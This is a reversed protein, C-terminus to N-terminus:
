RGGSEIVAALALLTAESGPRGVLQVSTPLVRGLPTHTTGYPVSVAPWGLVNALPTFPSFRMSAWLSRGWSRRHWDTAEPPVDALSPTLWVDIGALDMAREVEARLTEVGRNWRTDGDGAGGRRFVTRGLLAHHRTRREMASLPLNEDEAARAVGTTWRALYLVPDTPSPLTTDVVVLDAGRLVEAAERAARTWPAHIRVLDRGLRIPSAVSMGIRTGGPVPGVDALEPRGAMVSLALAVDGVTRALPGSEALSGWNDGALRTPVVGVGPKITVIGCAAAPIRLSGMGDDGVALPVMGSAVAAASGGSSGGASLALDRPNRTIGHADSDTMGWACLQPAATIGVPVAGAALLPAVVPNDLTVTSKVALPVGALPLAARDAPSAADVAAGAARGDARLLSTFAHLSPDLDGVRDFAADLTALAGVAGTRVAEATEAASLPDTTVAMITRGRRHGGMAIM